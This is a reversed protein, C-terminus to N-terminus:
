VREVDPTASTALPRYVKTGHQPEESRVESDPDRQKRQLAIYNQLMRIDDLGQRLGKVTIKVNGDSLDHVLDYVNNLANEEAPPIGRPHFYDSFNNKLRLKQRELLDQREAAVTTAYSFVQVFGKYEEEKEFSFNQWLGAKDHM